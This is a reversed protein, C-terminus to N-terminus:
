GLFFNMVARRIKGGEQAPLKLFLSRPLCTVKESVMLAFGMEYEPIIGTGNGYIKEYETLLRAYDETSLNEIGSFDIQTYTEGEYTFPKKLKFLWENDPSKQAENTTLSLSKDM